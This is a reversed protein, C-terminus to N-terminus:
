QGWLAEGAATPRVDCNMRSSSRQQYAVLAPGEIAGDDRSLADILGLADMHSCGLHKALGASTTVRGEMIEVLADSILAMTGIADMM